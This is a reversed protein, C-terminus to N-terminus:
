SWLHKWVEAIKHPSMFAMGMLLWFFGSEAIAKWLPRKIMELEDFQCEFKHQCKPCTEYDWNSDEPYYYPWKTM